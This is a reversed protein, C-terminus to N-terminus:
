SDAFECQADHLAEYLRGSRLSVRRSRELWVWGIKGLRARGSCILLGYEDVDVSVGPIFVRFELSAQGRDQSGCFWGSRSTLTIVFYTEHKFRLAEVKCPAFSGDVFSFLCSSSITLLFNLTEVGISTAAYLDHIFLCACLLGTASGAGM